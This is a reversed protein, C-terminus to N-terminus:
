RRTRLAKLKESALMDARIGRKITDYDASPGHDSDNLYHKAKQLKAGASTTTTSQHEELQNLTHLIIEKASAL